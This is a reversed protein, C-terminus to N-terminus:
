EKALYGASRTFWGIAMLASFVAGANTPSALMVFVAALLAQAIGFLFCQFSNKM